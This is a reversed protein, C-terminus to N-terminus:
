LIKVLTVGVPFCWVSQHDSDMELGAMHYGHTTVGMYRVGVHPTINMFDAKFTYEAGLGVTWMNAFIDAEYNTAGMEQSTNHYSAGHGGLSPVKQM